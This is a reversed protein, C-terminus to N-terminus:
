RKAEECVCFTEALWVLEVRCLIAVRYNRAGRAMRELWCLLLVYTLVQDATTM